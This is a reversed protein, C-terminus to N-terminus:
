QIQVLTIHVYNASSKEWKVASFTAHNDNNSNQRDHPTERADNENRRNITNQPKWTHTEAHHTRTNTNETNQTREEM